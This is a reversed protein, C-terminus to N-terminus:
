LRHCTVSWAATPKAPCILVRRDGRAAVMGDGLVIVATEGAPFDALAVDGRRPRTTPDCGMQAMISGAYAAFGGARLIAIRAALYSRSPLAPILARGCVREVYALVALGCNDRAADFPSSAWRRLEVSVPDAPSSPLTLFGAM